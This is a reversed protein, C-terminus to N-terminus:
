WVKWKAKNSIWDEELEHKERLTDMPKWFGRHEFAVMQGTQAIKEMPEKEWLTHDGEIYDFIQPECVFYGGNIWSGDGKPKEMFSDVLHNTKINLAGFRGSPQVATVTCYKNNEKHFKLLNSIDVDALGDGYTLMFTEEGIHQKIRKIRGGTMTENGTDVLTIKWPEAQSDHIQLKNNSLDITVDSQHLFYNAFYEKIMYGKYGLCIIFDNFGYSSYTKMIHWLIPMGGIEVMPKPKIVTEESLRTGLGGALLVVKM